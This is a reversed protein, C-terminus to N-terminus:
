EEIIGLDLFSLILLSLTKYVKYDHFYKEEYEFIKINFSKFDDLMEVKFKESIAEEVIDKIVDFAMILRKVEIEKKDIIYSKISQGNEFENKDNNFNLYLSEVSPYSMLFLGNKFSGNDRSNSFNSMNKIIKAPRNNVRDRDFAFYVASNDYDLNYKRLRKFIEDYYEEEINFKSIASFEAPIIFVRSYKNSNNRLFIVKKNKDYTFVTYGLKTYITSLINVEDVDGEVIYIVSGISKSENIKM